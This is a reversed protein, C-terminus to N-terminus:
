EALVENSIEVAESLAEEVTKEGLIAVNLADWIPGTADNYKAFFPPFVITNAGSAIRSMHPLEKFAESNQVSLRAPIQGANAWELSHESIWGVFKAAAEIKDSDTKRQRFIVFNHSGAWQAPKVLGLEPVPGAGFELGETDMYGRLMWIGNFEMACTGRKFADVDADVQVNTPSVNYDYILDVLFQMADHGAPGGYTAETQNNNFLEGDNSYFVSFWIMFNPWGVPIMTGWQDIEGDGDTDKTLKKAYQLFEERTKPPKEPDLGAEEFLEKNWYFTLPHVDLPIGYQSGNINAADWITKLIDGEEINMDDLYNDLPLLMGQNVINKINDIHVIGVDPGKGSALAIPLKTYYDGWLMTSTNVKIEDKFEENFQDVLNQIYEGDPGTFGNWFELVIEGMGTGALVLVISIFVLFKRM